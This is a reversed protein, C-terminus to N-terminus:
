KAKNARPPKKRTNSKARKLIEGLSIDMENNVFAELTCVIIQRVSCGHKQILSVADDRFTKDLKVALNCEKYKKYDVMCFTARM